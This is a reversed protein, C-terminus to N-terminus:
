RSPTPPQRAEVRDRISAYVEEPLIKNSLLRTKTAHPRGALIKDALADTIGPITKLQDKTASNIDVPKFKGKARTGAKSVKGPNTTGKPNPPVQGAMALTTGLLLTLPLVRNTM